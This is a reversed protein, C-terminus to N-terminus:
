RLFADAEINRLRNYNLQDTLKKDLVRLLPLVPQVSQVGDMEAIVRALELMQDHTLDAVM